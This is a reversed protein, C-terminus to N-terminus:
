PGSFCIEGDGSMRMLSEMYRCFRERYDVMIGIAHAAHMEEDLDAHWPKFCDMDFRPRCCACLGALNEDDNPHLFINRSSSRIRQIMNMVAEYTYYNTDNYEFEDENLVDEHQISSDYYEHLYKCYKGFLSYLNMDEISLIVNEMLFDSINKDLTFMNCPFINLECNWMYPNLLKQSVPKRAQFIKKMAIMEPDLWHNDQIFISFLGNSYEIICYFTKSGSVLEFIYDFKEDIKKELAFEKKNAIEKKIKSNKFIKIGDFSSKFVKEPIIKMLDINNNNLGCSIKEPITNVSMRASGNSHPMFEFTTGDDFTFIVPESLSVVNEVYYEDYNKINMIYNRPFGAKHLNGLVSQQLSELDFEFAAGITRVHTIRKGTVGIERFGCIVEYPTEYVPASWEFWDFWGNFRDNGPMEIM